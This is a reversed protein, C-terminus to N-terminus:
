VVVQCKRCPKSTVGGKEKSWWSLMMRCGTQGMRQHVPKKAWDVSYRHGSKCEFTMKTGDLAVAYHRENMMGDHYLLISAVRLSNIRNHPM